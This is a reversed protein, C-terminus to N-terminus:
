PECFRLGLGRYRIAMIGVSNLRYGAKTICPDHAAYLSQEVGQTLTNQLCQSHPVWPQIVSSLRIAKYFSTPFGLDKPNDYVRCKHRRSPEALLARDSM